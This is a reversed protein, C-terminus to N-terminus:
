VYIPETFESIGTELRTLIAKGRLSNVPVREEGSEKVIVINDEEIRIELPPNGTSKDLINKDRLIDQGYVKAEAVAPM